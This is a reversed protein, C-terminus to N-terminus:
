VVGPIKLQSLDACLYKLSDSIFVQFIHGDLEALARVANEPIMYTVFAFGKPKKTQNDIPFLVESLPGTVNLSLLPNM